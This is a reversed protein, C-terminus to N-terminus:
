KLNFHTAQEFPFHFKQVNSDMKLARLNQCCMSFIMIEYNSLSTLDVFSSEELIDTYEASNM